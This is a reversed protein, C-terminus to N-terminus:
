AIVRAARGSGDQAGAPQEGAPASNKQRKGNRTARGRGHPEDFDLLAAANPMVPVATLCRAIKALTVGNIARGSIADSVTDASVGAADAFARM